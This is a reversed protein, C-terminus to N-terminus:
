LSKNIPYIYIYIIYYYFLFLNGFTKQLLSKQVNIFTWFVIEWIVKPHFFRTKENTVMISENIFFLFITTVM